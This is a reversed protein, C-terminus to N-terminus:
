PHPANHASLCCAWTGLARQGAEGQQKDKSVFGVTRVPGHCQVKSFSVVPPAACKCWETISPSTAISPGNLNLDCIFAFFGWGLRLHCGTM